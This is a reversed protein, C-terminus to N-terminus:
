IFVYVIYNSDHSLINETADYEFITVDHGKNFGKVKFLDLICWKASM